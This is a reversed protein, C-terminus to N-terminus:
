RRDGQVVRYLVLIAAATTLWHLCGGSILTILIATTLLLLVCIAFIRYTNRSPRGM